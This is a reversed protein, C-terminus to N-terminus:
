RDGLDSGSIWDKYDYHGEKIWDPNFKYTQFKSVKKDADSKCDEIIEKKKTQKKQGRPM